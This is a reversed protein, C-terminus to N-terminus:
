QPKPDAQWATPSLDTDKIEPLGAVSNSHPLVTAVAKVRPIQHTLTEQAADTTIRRGGLSNVVDPLSHTQDNEANRQDASSRGLIDAGYLWASLLLCFSALTLAFGNDRLFKSM